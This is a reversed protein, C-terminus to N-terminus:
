ADRVNISQMTVTQFQPCFWGKLTLRWQQEWAVPLVRMLPQLQVTSPRQGDLIPDVLDPALLTM